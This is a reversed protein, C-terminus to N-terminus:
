NMGRFLREARQDECDALHIPSPLFSVQFGGFGMSTSKSGLYTPIIPFGGRIALYTRLGGSHDAKASLSLQAGAPIIISSWMQVEQGNVKVVVEKGAVAVVAPVHFKFIGQTGPLVIMELGEMEAPNDVLINASRFAMSDM